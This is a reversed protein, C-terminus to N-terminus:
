VLFVLLKTLYEIPTNPKAKQHRKPSLVCSVRFLTVFAESRRRQPSVGSGQAATSQVLFRSDCFAALIPIRWWLLKWSVPTQLGRFCVTGIGNRIAFPKV